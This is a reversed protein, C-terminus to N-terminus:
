RARCQWEYRAEGRPREASPLMVRHRMPMAVYRENYLTRALWAILRRPVIERVFVVGRRWGEASWRRVYFRLNVEEFDRHFLAPVGLVSTHLFSFGVMSVLTRGNWTDLETGAPVHPALVSPDVEYTLMALAKWQATLFRPALPARRQAGLLPLIREDLRRMLAAKEAPTLMEAGDTSRDFYVEVEFRDSRGERVIRIQFRQAPWSGARASLYYGDWEGDRLEWALDGHASRLLPPSSRPM